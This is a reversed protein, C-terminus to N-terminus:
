KRLIQSGVAVAVRRGEHMGSVADLDIRLAAAKHRFGPKLNRLGFRNGFTRFVVAAEHQDAGVRVLVCVDEGVRDLAKRAEAKFDDLAVRNLFGGFLRANRRFDEGFRHAFEIRGHLGAFRLLEIGGVFVVFRM